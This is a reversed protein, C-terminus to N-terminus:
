TTRIAATPSGLDVVEGEGMAGAHAWAPRRDRWMREGGRPLTLNGQIEPIATRLCPTMGPQSALSSQGRGCAERMDPLVVLRELVRM